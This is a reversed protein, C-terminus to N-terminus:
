EGISSGRRRDVRSDTTTQSFFPIVLVSASSSLLPDLFRHLASCCISHSNVRRVEEKWLEDETSINDIITPAFFSGESFNFGDLDSQGTLRAGGVITEGSMKRALMGEIRQLHHMSIVTGM